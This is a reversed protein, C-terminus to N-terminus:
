PRLKSSSNSSALWSRSRGLTLRYFFFRRRASQGAQKNSVHFADRWNLRRQCVSSIHCETLTRQRGPVIIVCSRCPLARTCTSIEESICRVAGASGGCTSCNDTKIIFCCLGLHTLTYLGNHLKTILKEYTSGTQAPTELHEHAKTMHQAATLM